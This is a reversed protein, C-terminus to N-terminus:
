SRDKNSYASIIVSIEVEMKQLLEAGKGKGYLRVPENTHGTSGYTVEGDQYIM